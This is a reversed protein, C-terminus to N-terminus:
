DAGVPQAKHMVDYTIIKRAEDLSLCQWVEGEPSQVVFGDQSPSLLHGLYEFQQPHPM